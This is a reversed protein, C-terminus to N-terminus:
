KVSCADIKIPKKVFSSGQEFKITKIVKNKLKGLMLREAVDNMNVFDLYVSVIQYIIKQKVNLKDYKIKM